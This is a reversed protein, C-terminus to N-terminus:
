QYSVRSVRKPDLILEISISKMSGFESFISVKDNDKLENALECKSLSKEQNKEDSECYKEM